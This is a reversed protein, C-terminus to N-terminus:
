IHTQEDSKEGRETSMWMECIGYDDEAPESHGYVTNSGDSMRVMATCCTMPKDYNPLYRDPFDKDCGREWMILRSQFLCNNCCKEM